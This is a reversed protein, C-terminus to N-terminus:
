PADDAPPKPADGSAEEEPLLRTLAPGDGAARYALDLGKVLRDFVSTGPPSFMAGPAADAAQSMGKAYLDKRANEILDGREDAVWAVISRAAELDLGALALRQAIEHPELPVVLWAAVYVALEEDRPGPERARMEFMETLEPEPEPNDLFDQLAEETFALEVGHRKADKEAQAMIQRADALLARPVMIKLPAFGMGGFPLTDGVLSNPIGAEELVEQLMGAEAPNPTKYACVVDRMEAETLAHEEEDEAENEM